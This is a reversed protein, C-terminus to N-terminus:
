FRGTTACAERAVVLLVGCALVWRLLVLLMPSVNDVALRAAITNCAWLLTTLSLMWIPTATLRAALGGEAAASM